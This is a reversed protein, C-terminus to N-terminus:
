LTEEPEDGGGGGCGLMGGIEIGQGAQFGLIAPIADGAPGKIMAGAVAASVASGILGSGTFGSIVRYGMGAVAGFGYNTLASTVGRASPVTIEAM